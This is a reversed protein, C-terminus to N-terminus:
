IIIILILIITLFKKNIKRESNINFNDYNKINKNLKPRESFSLTSETLTYNKNIEDKKFNLKSINNKKGNNRKM